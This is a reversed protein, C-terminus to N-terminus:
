FPIYVAEHYVDSSWDAGWWFRGETDQRMTYVIEGSCLIHTFLVRAVRKAADQSLVPGAMTVHWLQGEHEVSIIQAPATTM